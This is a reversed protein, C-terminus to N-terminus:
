SQDYAQKLWNIVEQDVDSPETLKVKHTCMGSFVNGGELRGVPEVGKLNLGLDVREKTSAQVVAFQKNRRLSVYTKKPAIEVDSGLQMAASIVTDFVPRMAKKPGSFQAVILDDEAPPGGAAQQRFLLTITNAYGHSLGYEGKLLKMIDGHKELSSNSLVAFWESLSKGTKDPMNNIMSQLQPDTADTM